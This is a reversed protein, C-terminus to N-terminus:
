GATVSWCLASSGAIFIAIRTAGSLRRTDEARAWFITFANILNPLNWNSQQAASLRM